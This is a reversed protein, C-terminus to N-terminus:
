DLLFDFCIHTGPLKHLNIRHSFKLKGDKFQVTVEFTEQRIFIRANFKHAFEGARKLGLGRADTPVSSLGGYAFIHEILSIEPAKGEEAIKKAVNPYREALVPMLTGVIGAGSDSFVAQIHPPRNRRYFQLAAFAPITSRSHERVNDFLECLITHAPQLYRNGACRVFSDRLRNPIAEDISDLNIRALEVVGDNEGHFEAATSVKPRRPEIAVASHLHDFFGIRNLYTLTSNSGVFSIAVVKGKEVLQNCLALLRAMADLLINTGPAFIFKVWRHSGELLPPMSKLAAEFQDTSLWGTPPFKVLLEGSALLSWCHQEDKIFVHTNGYLVSNVDGREAGIKKAIEKAKLGPTTSLTKKILNLMFVGSSLRSPM